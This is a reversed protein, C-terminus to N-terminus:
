KEGDVGPGVGEGHEVDVGPVRQVKFGGARGNIRLAVEGVADGDRRAVVEGAHRVNAGDRADGAEADCGAAAERGDRGEEGEVEALRRRGDAEGVDWGVRLVASQEQRRGEVGVLGGEDDRLAAVGGGVDRAM